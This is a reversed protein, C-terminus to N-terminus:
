PAEGPTFMPLYVDPGDEDPVREFCVRVPMGVEVDDAEVGVLATLVRTTPDEDLTVFALVYPAPVSPLWQHVVETWSEVHGRGSLEAWRLEDNHDRPCLLAPPHVLHDGADCRQVVLRGDAGSTWYPANRENVAPRPRAPLDAASM